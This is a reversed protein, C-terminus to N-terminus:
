MRKAARLGAHLYESKGDTGPVLVFNMPSSSGPPIASFRNEGVKSIESENSGQKLFLNGGRILIEFSVERQGYRGIYNSMESTSMQVKEKSVAPDKPRLPLMLEMAKEATKNLAVGTRNGLVIVAFRHEPSIKIVSGYGSRSGGHEVIRVGRYNSVM